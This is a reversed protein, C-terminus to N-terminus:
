QLLGQMDIYKTKSESLEKVLIRKSDPSLAEKFENLVQTPNQTSELTLILGVSCKGSKADSETLSACIVPSGDIKSSTIFNLKNDTHYNQLKETVAQCRKAPDYGADNFYKSSWEIMIRRDGNSTRARTTPTQGSTDCFFTPTNVNASISKVQSALSKISVLIEQLSKQDATKALQEGFKDGLKDMCANLDPYFNRRQQFASPRLTGDPFASLCGYKDKLSIMAQYAPDNKLVDPANGLKGYEELTVNLGSLYYRTGFKIAEINQTNSIEVAPPSPNFASIYNPTRQLELFQEISIGRTIPPGNPNPKNGHIAVLQGALNFVPGGSMNKQSIATYSVDYGREDPSTMSELNNYIEVRTRKQKPSDPAPWGSLMVPDFQKLDASQGITAVPYDRDSSFKLIALDTGKYQGGNKEKKLFRYINTNDIRYVDGDSVRIGYTDDQDVVHSNTLVYYDTQPNIARGGDGKFLISNDKKAIIVGSGANKFSEGQEIDGKKELDNSILVTTASAITSVTAKPILQEIAVASDVFVDSFFGLISNASIINPIKNGVSFLLITLCLIFVKIVSQWSTKFM